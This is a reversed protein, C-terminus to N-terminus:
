VERNTPLTLHTYSVPIFLTFYPLTSWIYLSLYEGALNYKNWWSIAAGNSNWFNSDTARLRWSPDGDTDATSATNSGACIEQDSIATVTPTPKVTVDVTDTNRCGNADM